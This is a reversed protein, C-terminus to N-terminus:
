LFQATLNITKLVVVRGRVRQLSLGDFYLSNCDNYGSTGTSPIYTCM